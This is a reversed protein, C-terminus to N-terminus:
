PHEWARGTKQRPFVLDHVKVLERKNKIHLAKLTKEVAQQCMFAALYYDGSKHCNNASRFDIKSQELWSNVDEKM